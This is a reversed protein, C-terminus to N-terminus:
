EGKKMNATAELPQLNQLDWCKKFNEDEMSNYLLKSQPIIHDIHWYSGYNDWSMKDDFKSEL